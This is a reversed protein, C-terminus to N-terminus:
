VFGNRAPTMFKGNIVFQIKKEVLYYSLLGILVSMLVTLIGAIFLTLMSFSFTKCLVGYGMVVFGHSLYLSYSADGLVSLKKCDGGKALFLTFLVLSLLAMAIEKYEQTFGTFALIYFCLICISVALYIVSLESYFRFIAAQWTYLAMGAIFFYFIPSAMFFDLAPLTTASNKGMFVVVGFILALILIAHKKPTNLFILIAFLLYYFVEYILTWGQGLVPNIKNPTSDSYPLLLYSTIMKTLSYDHQKLVLGSLWFVILITLWVWYTPYIRLVRKKMFLFAQDKDWKKNFTTFSMIYGSVIFFIYVGVTGVGQINDLVAGTLGPVHHYINFQTITHDCVVFLAAIARLAQISYSKSVSSQSNNM